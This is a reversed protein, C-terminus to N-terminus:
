FLDGQKPKAPAPEPKPTDLITLTDEEAPRQLRIADEIPENLWTEVDEWELIVPMAKKHIPKMLDNPFTTLFTYLEHDGSAPEKKTGRDGTWPRWFGAFFIPGGDSRVFQADQIKQGEIGRTRDDPEFFSSAPVVVRYEPGTWEAWFPSPGAKNMIHRANTVYSGEVKPFGWRMSSLDLGDGQQRLVLGVRDPYLHEPLNGFRLPIKIESFQEGLRGGLFMGLKRLDNSYHNCM